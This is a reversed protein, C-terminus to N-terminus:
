RTRLDTHTRADLNTHTHAHTVEFLAGLPASVMNVTDPYMMPGYQVMPDKVRVNNAVVEVASRTQDLDQALDQFPM